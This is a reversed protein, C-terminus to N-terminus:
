EGAVADALWARAIKWHREATRRPIGLADAAEDLTLRALTRLQVLKAAVPFEQALRELADELDLLDDTM